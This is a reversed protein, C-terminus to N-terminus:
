VFDIIEISNNNEDVTINNKIKQNERYQKNYESIKNQNAEYYQKRKDKNADQYKKKNELIKDRCVEKYESLSRGPMQKNLGAELKEIFEREIKRAHLADDCKLTEILVMDWNNWGGNDRVFQYKYTNYGKLNENYCHSKHVCKRRTFDTTHGVYIDNITPDKCCLKYFHTKDYNITHKPM